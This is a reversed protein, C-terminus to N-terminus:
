ERLSDDWGGQETLYDEVRSKCDELGQGLAENWQSEVLGVKEKLDDTLRREEDARIARMEHDVGTLDEGELLRQTELLRSGATMVGTKVEHLLCLLNIQSEIFQYASRGAHALLSYLYQLPFDHYAPTEEYEQQPVLVDFNHLRSPVQQVIALLGPAIDWFASLQAEVGRTVNQEIIAMIEEYRKLTDKEFTVKRDQADRQFFSTAEKVKQDNKAQIYPLVIIDRYLDNREDELEFMEKHLQERAEFLWKLLTLIELLEPKEDGEEQTQNPNTDQADSCLRGKLHEISASVKTIRECFMAHLPNAVEAQFTDFIWQIVDQARQHERNDFDAEAKAADAFSMVGARVNDQINYRLEARRESLSTSEQEKRSDIKTSFTSKTKKVEELDSITRLGSRISALDPHSNNVAPHHRPYSPPLTVLRSVDLKRPDPKAPTTSQYYGNAQEPQAHTVDEHLGVKEPPYEDASYMQRSSSGARHKPTQQDEGIWQLSERADKQLSMYKSERKSRELRRGGGVSDGGDSEWWRSASRGRSDEEDPITSMAMSPIPSLSPHYNNSWSVDRAKQSSASSPSAPETHPTFNGMSSAPSAATTPMSASVRTDPSEGAVSAQSRGSSLISPTAQANPTASRRATTGYSRWLDRTLDMIDGAMADFASLYRDRRLRSENVIFEAFLELRDQDTEAASEKEIFQQHRDISAQAFADRGAPRPTSVHSDDLGPTTQISLQSVSRNAVGSEITLSPVDDEGYTHIPPTPLAKSPFSTVAKQFHLRDLTETGPSFPPTPASMSVAGQHVNMRPTSSASGPDDFLHGSRPSRIIGGSRPTGKTVAGRRTLGTELELNAPKASAELDQAWPNNSPEVRERAARSESRRERIGRASM